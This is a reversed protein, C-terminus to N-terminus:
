CEPAAAEEEGSAMVQASQGTMNVADPERCSLRRVPMRLATQKVTLSCSENGVCVVELAIQLELGISAYGQGTVGIRATGGFEVLLERFTSDSAGLSEENFLTNGLRVNIRLRHARLM